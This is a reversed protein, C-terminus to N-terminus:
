ALLSKVARSLEAPDDRRPFLHGYTDLTMVISSHGLLAQAEKPPMERGGRSAPNICWSAFFHRFAHLTYKPRGNRKMLGAAKMVPALSQIMIEHHSVEGTIAPFVLGAEGKPCALKWERLAPLLTDPDLPMTRKSSESKPMGILCYKDARQRVHLERHTLDVDSWRLGRLESARLGTLAATLLLTRSRLDTACAIMRKVEAPTPFDRGEEARHKNRKDVGINVGACLHSYGAVKLLSKFSVFVKRALPRSMDALLRDRFGEVSKMTLSGLKGKGIRPAIHIRLHQRYHDLTSREAGDATVRNIWNEGAVEVTVSKSPATHMGKKVESHVTAAFDTADGKTDFTKIHPSGNAAYHVIWAERQEGKRTTWIRKRVSM